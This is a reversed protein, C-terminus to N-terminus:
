TERGRHKLRSSGTTHGAWRWPLTPTASREGNRSVDAMHSGGFEHNLAVDLLLDAYGSDNVREFVLDGQGTKGNQKKISPINRRETAIM